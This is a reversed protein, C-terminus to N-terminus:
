YVSCVIRLAALLALRGWECSSTVRKRAEVSCRPSGLVGDVDRSWDTNASWAVSALREESATSILTSGTRAATEATGGCAALPSAPADSFGGRSDDTSDRSFGSFSVVDTVSLDNGPQLWGEGM